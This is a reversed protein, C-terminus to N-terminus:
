GCSRSGCRRCNVQFSIGLDFLNRSAFDLFTLNHVSDHDILLRHVTFHRRADFLRADKEEIRRQFVFLPFRLRLHFNCLLLVPICDQLQFFFINLVQTSFDNGVLWVNDNGFLSHRIKCLM